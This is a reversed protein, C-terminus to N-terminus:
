GDMEWARKRYSHSYKKTNHTVFARHERILLLM